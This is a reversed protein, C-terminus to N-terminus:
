MRCLENEFLGSRAAREKELAALYSRFAPKGRALYKVSELIGRVGAAFEAAIGAAGAEPPDLLLFADGACIKRILLERLDRLGAALRTNGGASAGAGRGARRTDACFEFRLRKHGNGAAAEALRAADHCNGSTLSIVGYVRELGDLAAPRKAAAADIVGAHIWHEKMFRAIERDFNDCEIAVKIKKDLRGAQAMTYFSIAEADDLGANDGTARIILEKRAAPSGLLADIGGRLGGLAVGGGVCVKLSNVGQPQAIEMTKKRTKM